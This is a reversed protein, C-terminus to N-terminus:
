QVEGKTIDMFLRELGVKSPRFEVIPNGTSVLHSLLDATAQQDGILEVEIIQGLLQANNVRPFELACKHAQDANNLPRITLRTTPEDDCHDEARHLEDLTGARVVKGLEIIVAGHAIEELENLIHSSILIAKGREALAVLLSRLEIRARPDLGAAPEDLILVEPDHVLARALSVRQKMGKSLSKITKDRMHGIGVFEELEKLARQRGPSRLKFARAYFDLYEWVVIDAHSPLTDPMFGFLQRAKEPYESAPLDDYFVDGEDAWEMTAMIRMTTTKGAGNPGVFAFIQGSEFSFRIHDVATTRKFTKVLGDITVQM